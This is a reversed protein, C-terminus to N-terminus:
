EGKGDGLTRGNAILLETSRCLELLECGWTGSSQAKKDCNSRKPIYCNLYAGEDPIDFYDQLDVVTMYDDLEATRANMDGCLINCGGANQAEFLSQLVDLKKHMEGRM